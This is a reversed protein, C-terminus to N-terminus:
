KSTNTDDLLSMQGEAHHDIRNDEEYIEQASVRAAEKDVQYVPM